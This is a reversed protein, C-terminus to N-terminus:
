SYCSSSCVILTRKSRFTYFCFFCVKLSKAHLTLPPHFFSPHCITFDSVRRSASIRTLFGLGLSKPLFNQSEFFTFVFWAFVLSRSKDFVSGLNRSGALIKRSGRKELYWEGGRSLCPHCLLVRRGGIHGPNLDWCRRWVHTSNTTPERRQESFNEEPNQLKGKEKFVWVELNWNLRSHM